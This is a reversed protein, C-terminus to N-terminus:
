CLLDITRSKPSFMERVPTQHSWYIFSFGPAAESETDKNYKLGVYLSIFLM